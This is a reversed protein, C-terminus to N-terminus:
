KSVIWIIHACKVRCTNNPSVPLLKWVTSLNRFALFHGTETRPKVFTLFSLLTLYNNQSAFWRFSMVWSKVLMNKRANDPLHRLHSLKGEKQPYISSDHPQTFLELGRQWPHSLLLLINYVARQRTKRKLVVTKEARM